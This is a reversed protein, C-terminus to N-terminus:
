TSWAYCASAVLDNPTAGHYSGERADLALWDGYHKQWMKDSDDPGIWLDPELTDATIYDVWRQMAGFNDELTRIDGFMLYVRWPMVTMVDGWAASSREIQWFNPVTDPISGDARQDARLDGMWKELFSKCHYHYCAALSFVQADGTWGMREDRQPCDTPIDIFNNRQSWVSNEVLRNLRLDSTRITGTREMEPWIAIARISDTEPTGPYEDLRLYRFGYFTFAPKWTQRGERCIMTMCSKATRYNANYFNGEADLMEACTLVVRDGAHADLTIEAYGSIEQGFDLVREGTPTVFSRVPYLVQQEVLRSGEQPILQAKELAVTVAPQTKQEPMTLDVTEGDWLDNFITNSRCVQWTDDTRLVMTGGDALRITLEALLAHPTEHVEPLKASLRSHYWGKGVTIVLRNRAQLLPLVDYTQYQLRKTYVTCGPRLLERGVRQGNLEAVYTGMATVALAAAVVNGEFDFNRSFCIAGDEVEFPPKIWQADLIM